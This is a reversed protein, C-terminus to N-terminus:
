KNFRLETNKYATEIEEKTLHLGGGMLYKSSENMFDNGEHHSLGLLHGIEHALVHFDNSYYRDIICTMGDEEYATGGAQIFNFRPNRKMFVIRMTGDNFDSLNNFYESLQEWFSIDKKFSKLDISVDRIDEIEIEIDAQNLISSAKKAINYINEEDRYTKISDPSTIRYAIASIKIKPNNLISPMEIQITDQPTQYTNLIFRLYLIKPPLIFYTFVLIGLMLGTILAMRNRGDKLFNKLKNILNM